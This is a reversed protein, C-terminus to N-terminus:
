GRQEARRDVVCGPEFPHKLMQDKYILVSSIFLLFMRATSVCIRFYPIELWNQRDFVTQCYKKYKDQMDALNLRINGRAFRAMGSVTDLTLHYFYSRARSM